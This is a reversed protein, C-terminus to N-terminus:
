DDADPLSDIIRKEIEKPDEVIGLPNNPTVITETKGVFGDYNKQWWILTAPNLKGNAGLMERYTSCFAKVKQIMDRHAPSPVYQGNSWHYVDDKSIGMAYYALQNTVRVDNRGCFDVFDWFRQELAAADKRDVPGWEHIALMIGVLKSNDGPKMKLGNDGIVPSSEHPRPLDPNKVTPKARKGSKPIGKPM